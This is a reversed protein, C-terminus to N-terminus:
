EKESEVKKILGTGDYDQEAAWGPVIKEVPWLRIGNVMVVEGAIRLRQGPMMWEAIANSEMSPSSRLNMGNVAVVEVADGIKISGETSGAPDERDAPGAAAVPYSESDLKERPDTYGGYGNNPDYRYTRYSLHLHPGTVCGSRGSKGIVEGRQIEQGATKALVESLHAYLTESKDDHTLVVYHGYGDPEYGIKKLIAHDVAMVPTGDPCAIDIGNHGKYGWKSYDIAHEGFEQSVMKQWNFVPPLWKSEM